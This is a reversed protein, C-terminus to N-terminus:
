SHGTLQAQIHEKQPPPTNNTSQKVGVPEPALAEIQGVPEARCGSRASTRVSLAVQHLPDVNQQQLGTSRQISAPPILRKMIAIM